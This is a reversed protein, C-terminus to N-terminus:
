DRAVAVLRTAPSSSARGGLIDGDDLPVTRVGPGCATIERTVVSFRRASGPRKSSRAARWSAGSVGTPVRPLERDAVVDRGSRRPGRARDRDHLLRGIGRLRGRRSGGSWRRHYPTSSPVRRSRRWTSCSPWGASSRGSSPSTRGAGGTPVPCDADVPLVGKGAAKRNNPADPTVWTFTIQNRDLFRRLQVVATSPHVSSPRGPRRRSPRSARCAAPGGSGTRRLGDSRPAVDAGGRRRHSLREARCAVAVREARPIRRPLGHDSRSRCKASSTAPERRGVRKRSRRDDQGGRHPRRDRRLPRTRRGGARRVRRAAAHHGGRRARAARTPRTLGPSSRSGRSTTRRSWRRRRGATSGVQKKWAGLCGFGQGDAGALTTTLHPHDRAPILTTPSPRRM